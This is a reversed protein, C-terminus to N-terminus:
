EKNLGNLVSFMTTRQGGYFPKGQRRFHFRGASIFVPFIERCRKVNLVATM